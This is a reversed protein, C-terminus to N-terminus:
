TRISWPADPDDSVLTLAGHYEGPVPPLFGVEIPTESRPPVVLSGTGPTFEARDSTVATVNLPESGRNRVTLQLVGTQGIFLTGFVVAVACAKVPRTGPSTKGTSGAPPIAIGADVPDLVFDFEGGREGRVADGSSRHCSRATTGFSNELIQHEIHSTHYSITSKSM